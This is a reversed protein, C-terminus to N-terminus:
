LSSHQKAWQKDEPSIRRGERILLCYTAKGKGQVAINAIFSPIIGLSHLLSVPPPLDHDLGQLDESWGHEDWCYSDGDVHGEVFPYDPLVGYRPGGRNVRWSLGGVHVADAGQERAPARLWELLVQKAADHAYTARDPM